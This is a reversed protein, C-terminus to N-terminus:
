KDRISESRSTAHEVAKRISRCSVVVTLESGRDRKYSEPVDALHLSFLTVMQPAVPDVLLVNNEVKIIKKHNSRHYLPSLKQMSPTIRQALLPICM